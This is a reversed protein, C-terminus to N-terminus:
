PKADAGRSRGVLVEALALDIPTTIKLALADGAVVRVELGAAEAMAADDTFATAEELARGAFRRHLEALTELRFGQPTQVARLSSREFTEAVVEVKADPDPPTLAPGLAPAEPAFAATPNLECVRNITDTVPLAPIVASAGARLAEILRLFVSAPTFCRAADHVLVLDAATVPGCLRLVEEVAAGVSAQRSAGGPVVAAPVPFDPPIQRSIADLFDAPASIVVGAIGTPTRPKVAQGRSDALTAVRSLAHGLLTDGALTVLAKPLDAGLRSGSGAATLVLFVRSM